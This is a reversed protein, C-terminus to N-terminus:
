CSHVWAPAAFLWKTTVRFVCDRDIDKSGTADQVSKHVEAFNKGFLDEESMEVPPVSTTETAATAAPAAVAATAAATPAHATTIETRSQGASSKHTDVIRDYCDLRAVASGLERCDVLAQPLEAAGAGLTPAIVCTATFILPKLRNLIM